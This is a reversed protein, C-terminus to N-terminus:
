RTSAQEDKKRLNNILASAGVTTIALSGVATGVAKLPGTTRGDFASGITSVLRQGRTQKKKGFM